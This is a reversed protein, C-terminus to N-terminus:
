RKSKEFKLMEKLHIKYLELFKRDKERNSHEKARILRSLNGVPVKVGEVSFIRKDKDWEKFLFRGGSLVIDIPMENQKRATVVARHEIIKNVLWSDIGILPEKNAEFGYGMKELTKFVTLLNEPTPEVVIDCDMTHFGQAPDRVYYDIAYVGILIYKIRKQNFLKFIKLNSDQYMTIEGSM